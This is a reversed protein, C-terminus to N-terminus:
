TVFADVDEEPEQTASYLLYREYIENRCPKIRSDSAAIIDPLNEKKSSDSFLLYHLIIRQAERGMISRFTAIRIKMDKRIWGQYM